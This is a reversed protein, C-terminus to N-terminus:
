ANCMKSISAVMAAAEAAVDDDAVRIITKPEDDVPQVLPPSTDLEDFESIIREAIFSAKGLLRTSPSLGSNVLFNANGIFNANASSTTDTDAAADATATAITNATQEYSRYDAIRRLEMTDHANALESESGMPDVAKLWQELAARDFQDFEHPVNTRHRFELAYTPQPHDVQQRKQSDKGDLQRSVADIYNEGDQRAFWHVAGRLARTRESLLRTGIQDFLSEAVVSPKEKQRQKMKQLRSLIQVHGDREDSWGPKFPVITEVGLGRIGRSVFM